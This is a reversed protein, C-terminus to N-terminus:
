KKEEKVGYIKQDCLKKWKKVKESSIRDKVTLYKPNKEHSTWM